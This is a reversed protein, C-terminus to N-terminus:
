RNEVLLLVQVVQITELEKESTPMKREVGQVERRRAILALATRAQQCIESYIGGLDSSELLFAILYKLLPEKPLALAILCTM